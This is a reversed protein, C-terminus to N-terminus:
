IGTEPQGSQLMELLVCGLRADISKLPSIIIIFVPDNSSHVQLRTDPLRTDM